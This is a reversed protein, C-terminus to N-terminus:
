SPADSPGPVSSRVTAPRRTAVLGAAACAVAALVLGLVATTGTTVRLGAVVHDYVVAAVDADRVLPSLARVYAGRGAAVGAGLLLMGAALVFGATATARVRRRAVAVAAVLLGLVLWQLWAGVADLVRYADRAQVLETRTLLPLRVDITPLRDVVTFGAASLAERVAAVVGSLDVTLTGDDGITARADPDGRLVAGLRAHVERNARDWATAFRDSGVVRAVTDRVFGTVATALPGQLSEVAGAARPPLGLGAVAATADAALGPVDVAEVVAQAVRETVAARVQPDRALPGVVALYRDTDTVLDRAWSAVVAVPALLGAVVLLAVVAASRAGSRRGVV